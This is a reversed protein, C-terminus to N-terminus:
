HGRCPSIAMDMAGCDRVHSIGTTSLESPILVEVVLGRDWSSSGMGSEWEVDVRSLIRDM